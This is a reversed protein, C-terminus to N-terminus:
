CAGPMKALGAPAKLDRKARLATRAASLTATDMSTM